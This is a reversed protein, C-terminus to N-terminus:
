QKWLSRILPERTDGTPTFYSSLVMRPSHQDKLTHDILRVGKANIVLINLQSPRMRWIVQDHEKFGRSQLVAFVRRITTQARQYTAKDVAGWEHARALAKMADELWTDYDIDRKFRLRIRAHDAQIAEHAVRAALQPSYKRGSCLAAIRDRTKRGYRVDITAIDIKLFTKEVLMHMHSYPGRALEPETSNESARAVDGAVSCAMLALTCLLVRKSCVITKPGQCAM